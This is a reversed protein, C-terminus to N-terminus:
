ISVICVYATADELLDHKAANVWFDFKLKFSQFRAKFTLLLDGQTQLQFYTLIKVIFKIIACRSSM